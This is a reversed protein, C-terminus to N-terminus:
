FNTGNLKNYEEVKILYTEYALGIKDGNVEETSYRIDDGILNSYKASPFNVRTIIDIRSTNVTESNIETPIRSSGNKFWFVRDGKKFKTDHLISLFDEYQELNLYAYKRGKREVQINKYKENSLDSIPVKITKTSSDIGAGGGENITKVKRGEM